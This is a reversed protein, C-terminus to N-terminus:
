SASGLRPVPPTDKVPEVYNPNVIPDAPRLALIAEQLEKSQEGAKIRAVLPDIHKKVWMFPNRNTKGVYKNMDDVVKDLHAQCAALDFKFAAPAAPVKVPNEPM